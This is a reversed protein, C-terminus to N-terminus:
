TYRRSGYGGHNAIIKDYNAWMRDFAASVKQATVVKAPANPAPDGAFMARLVMKYSESGRMNPRAALYKTAAKFVWSNAWEVPAQFDPSCPPHALLNDSTLAPDLKALLGQSVAAAHWPANDMALLVDKVGNPFVNPHAEVVAVIKPWAQKM